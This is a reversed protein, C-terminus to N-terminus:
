RTGDDPADLMEIAAGGVIDAPKGQPRAQASRPGIACEM